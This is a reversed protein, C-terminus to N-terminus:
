SRGGPTSQIPPEPFWGPKLVQAELDFPCETPIPAMSLDVHSERADEAAEAYCRVFEDRTVRRLSPSQALIELLDNRQTRVTGRWGNMPEYAPSYAIKLLHLLITRLRSYVERRDRGGVSEIEEALHELDLETNARAAVLARLKAAQDQTWAYFDAEYLSEPRSM